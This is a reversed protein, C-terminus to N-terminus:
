PNQFTKSYDISYGIDDLLAADLRTVLNRTGRTLTPDMLVEGSDGYEHGEQFHSNDPGSANSALPVAYGGNEAVANSGIFYYNGNDYLSVLDNFANIGSSIGLVHGIEHVAVSVFDHETFPITDTILPDDPDFHWSVNPDFAVTGIWPEFDSGTFREIYRQHSDSGVVYSTAGSLPGAVGLSGNLDRAGVFIRLDDIASSTTIQTYEGTQPNRVDMTEGAAIESFEDLIIDEWIKAAAELAVRKESTFWGNTDFRYDFEINFGNNQTPSNATIARYAVNNTENSESIAGFGDAEFLIYKTGTGWSADYTFQLSDSESANANLSSVYSSGLSRDGSDLTTDNSLWYRINSSGATSGGINKTYASISVTNGTTISTPASANQVVLDPASALASITVFDYSVAVGQNTNNSEDSEAIAGNYDVIM